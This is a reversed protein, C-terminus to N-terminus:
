LLRIKDMHCRLFRFKDSSRIFSSFFKGLDQYFRALACLSLQVQNFLFFVQVSRVLRFFKGKIKVFVSGFM